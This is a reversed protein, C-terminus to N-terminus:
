KRFQLLLTIEERQFDMHVRRLKPFLRNLQDFVVFKGDPFVKHGIWHKQRDTVWGQPSTIWIRGVIPEGSGAHLIRGKVLVVQEIVDLTTM